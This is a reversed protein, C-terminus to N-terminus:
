DRTGPAISEPNGGPHAGNGHMGESELPTRARSRGLSSTSTCTTVPSRPSFTFSRVASSFTSTSDTGGASGFPPRERRWRDRQQSRRLGRIMQGQRIRGRAHAQQQAIRDVFTALGPRAKVPRTNKLIPVGRGCANRSFTRPRKEMPPSARREGSRQFRYQVLATALAPLWRQVVPELAAPLGLMREVGPSRAALSRGARQDQALGTASRGRASDGSRSGTM